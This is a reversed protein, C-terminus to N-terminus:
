QPKDLLGAVLRRGELVDKALGMRVARLGAATLGFEKATEVLKKTQEESPNM